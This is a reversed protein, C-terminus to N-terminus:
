SDFYGAGPEVTKDVIGSLGFFFSLGPGDGTRCLILRQSFTAQQPRNNQRYLFHFSPQKTILCCNYIAQHKRVANCKHKALAFCIGSLPPANPLPSTNPLLVNPQLLTNPPMQLATTRCRRIQLGTFQEKMVYGFSIMTFEFFIMVIMVMMAISSYTPMITAQCRYVGRLSREM